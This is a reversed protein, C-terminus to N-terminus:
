AASMWRVLQSYCVIDNDATAEATVRLTSAGGTAEAPFAVTVRAFSASTAFAAVQSQQAISSTRIVRGRLYMSGGSAAVATSDYILTAGYYARVRKNNANAAFDLAYEFEVSDGNADLTSAPVVYTFLDDEGAGVNGAQGTQSNLPRGLGTVVSTALRWQTTGLGFKVWLLGTTGDIAYTGTRATLGAVSPDSAARLLLSM